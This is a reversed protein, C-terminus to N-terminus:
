KSAFLHLRGVIFAARWTAERMGYCMDAVRGPRGVSSGDGEAWKAALFGKRLRGLGVPVWRAARTEDWAPLEGFCLEGRGHERRAAPQGDTPAGGGM